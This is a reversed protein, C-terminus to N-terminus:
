SFVRQFCGNINPDRSGVLVDLRLKVIQALKGRFAAELLPMEGIQQNIYKLYGTWSDATRPKIPNRKRTQVTQLWREAQEKFTTGLNVAEAEKFVPESNAGFEAIIEKVRRKLEFKNLSLDARVQVDAQIRWSRGVLVPCLLSKRKKRYPWKSWVQSVHM